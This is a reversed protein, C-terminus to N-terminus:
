RKFLNANTRKDNIQKAKQLIEKKQKYETTMVYHSCEKSCYKQKDYIKRKYYKKACFVNQCISIQWKDMKKREISEYEAKCKVSCCLSSPNNRTLRQKLQSPWIYYKKSCNNCKLEVRSGLKKEKWPGKKRYKKKKVGNLINLLLQIKTQHETLEEM